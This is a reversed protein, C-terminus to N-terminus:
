SSRAPFPAVIRIDFRRGPRTKVRNPVRIEGTAADWAFPTLDVPHTSVEPHTAMFAGVREPAVDQARLEYALVVLRQYAAVDYVRLPYNLYSVVDIGAVLKGFPNYLLAPFKRSPLRNRWDLYARAGESFHGPDADATAALREMLAAELNLTARPKFFIRGLDNWRRELWNPWEDGGFRFSEPEQAVQTFVAAYRRFESPFVKGIRWAEQPWPVLLTAAGSQLSELPVSRDEIMDAFLMLDAHLYATAVMKSAMSGEGQLMGRWATTDAQFSNVAARRESEEGSQVARAINALYLVRLPPPVAYFLDVGRWPADEYYGKAALLAAYRDLLVRNANTWAVARCGIITLTGLHARRACGL